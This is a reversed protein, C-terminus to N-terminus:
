KDAWCSVLPLDNMTILGPQTQVVRHACNVVMAATGIDGHVGGKIVVEMDPTGTIYVADYSEPAILSAEFELRMVEKGALYGLGVQRVGAAQGPEVSIYQSQTPEQAIVPKISETAKDLKWGLGAAIMHMSETLGVHRLTKAEVLKDFESLTCGAGIKKQFPQRRTMANQVRISKIYKVQECVATMAIPWADMLFGPNIGTGLVSVNNAKAADDIARALDDNAIYPYSLEEASSVVNLGLVILEALQPTIAKMTSATQHFVVDAKQNALITNIDDTVIVGMLQGTGMVEGLDKGVKNPDVDVAGILEINNRSNALKAVACGIPGCGYQIAKIKETM